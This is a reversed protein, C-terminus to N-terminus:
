IGLGFGCAIKHPLTITATEYSLYDTGSINRTQVKTLSNNNGKFCNM